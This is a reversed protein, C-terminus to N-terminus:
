PNSGDRLSAPQARSAGIRAHSFRKVRRVIRRLRNLARWGRSSTVETLQEQLHHIHSHSEHVAHQLQRIQTNKEGGIRRIAQVIEAVRNDAAAPTLALLSEPMGATLSDHPQAEVPRSAPMLDTRGLCYTRFTLAGQQERCGVWLQADELAARSDHYVTVAQGYVADDSQIVFVFRKGESDAIPRFEFRQWDNDTVSNVPMTVRAVEDGGPTERRLSFTLRTENIRDYVAMYVDVRCLLNASVRFSQAVTLGGVIEGVVGSAHPQNLDRRQIPHPENRARLMLQEFRRASREFSRGHIYRIGLDAIAQCRAPDDLLGVVARALSEPDPKALTLLDGKGYDHHNNELDLDVVACGCAMMEFGILSPNSMSLIIGVTARSYLKACENATLLGSDEFPFPLGSPIHTSGFLVIRADPRRRHVQELAKALHDFGSHPNDPQALVCVIPQATRQDERPYYTSTDVAFDIYDADANYRQRLLHTMWRGNTICRLGLSYTQEALVWEIGMPYFSPEFDQVYYLKKSSSHSAQVVGATSWDTAILVDCPDIHDHGLRLTVGPDILKERLFRALQDVDTFRGGGDYYLTCGHGFEQLFRANRLIAKHGDSGALPAPVVWSIELGGKTGRTLEGSATLGTLPRCRHHEIIRELLNVFGEHRNRPTYNAITHTEAREGIRRRLGPDEILLRLARYWEDKSGCLFGNDGDKIAHEFAEIRSAVTPIGLIGSEFYKLESKCRCFPNPELPALDIDWRALVQPVQEWGITTIREIRDPFPSFRADLDLPGLICLRVQPYETLIQVLAEAAELFDHNHTHTGSAYGLVIADSSRSLPRRAAAAESIFRQSLFNRDVFAIRGRRRALEALYDTAGIFYECHEVMKLSLQVGQHYSVQEAPSLLMVGRHFETLDPEFVLDDVDYVAPKGRAALAELLAGIPECFLTRHFLAIDTQDVLNEIARCSHLRSELQSYGIITCTRGHMELLERRQFVRYREPGSAEM